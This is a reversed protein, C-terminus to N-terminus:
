SETARGSQALDAVLGHLRPKTVARIIIGFELITDFYKNLFFVWM